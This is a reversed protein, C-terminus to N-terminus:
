SSVSSSHWFIQLYIKQATKQATRTATKLATKQLSHTLTRQATEAIRTHIQTKTKQCKRDTGKTYKMRRVEHAHKMTQLHLGQDARRLRWKLTKPDLGKKLFTKNFIDLSKSFYM